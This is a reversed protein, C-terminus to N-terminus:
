GTKGARILDIQGRTWRSAKVVQTILGRPGDEGPPPLTAKIEEILEARAASAVREAEDFRDRLDGIRALREETTPTRGTM